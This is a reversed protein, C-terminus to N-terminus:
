TILLITRMHYVFIQGWIADVFNDEKSYLHYQGRITDVFNDEQCNYLCTCTLYHDGWNQSKKGEMFQSVMQWKYIDIHKVNRPMWYPFAHTEIDIITLSICNEFETGGTTFIKWFCGTFLSMYIILERSKRMLSIKIIM